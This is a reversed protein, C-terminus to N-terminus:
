PSDPDDTAGNELKSAGADRPGSAFKLRVDLSEDVVLMM